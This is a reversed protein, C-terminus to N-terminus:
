PSRHRSRGSHGPALFESVAESVQEREVSPDMTGHGSRSIELLEDILELLHTGGKLIHHVGESQQENLDDMELLQGYGLIANLPTRLEHSMKSLFESKAKSAREAEDKAQRLEAEERKHSTIDRAVAYILQREAAGVASWLLWRFSGDKCMYRNEFSLTTSGEALKAAERATVERDDPHVFEIFPKATLEEMTWGLTTEWVPNLQKFYGEFDAVCLMDLSLSFFHDRETQIRKRDTIDRAITSIGVVEGAAGLIPSASVSVDIAKGDKRIRVTDLLRVQEGRGVRELIEAMEDTRDKPAIISIPEGLVDERTYGYIREAGRNWSRITGDLDKGIIADDSSEVIAQFFQGEEHFGNAKSFFRMTLWNKSLM